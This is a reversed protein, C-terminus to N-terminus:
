RLRVEYWGTVRTSFSELRNLQLQAQNVNTNIQRGTVPSSRFTNSSLFRSNPRDWVGIQIRGADTYSFEYPILFGNASHNPIWSSRWHSQPTITTNITRRGSMPQIEGIALPLVDEEFVGISELAEVVDDSHLIEEESLLYEFFNLEVGEAFDFIIIDELELGYAVSEEILSIALDVATFDTEQTLTYFLDNIRNNWENLHGSEELVRIFDLSEDFAIAQPEVFMGEVAEWMAEFESPTILLPATQEFAVFGDRQINFSPMLYHEIGTYPCIGLRGGRYIRIGLEERVEMELLAGVLKDQYLEEGFQAVFEEFGERREIGQDAAATQSTFVITMTFGIIWITIKMFKM